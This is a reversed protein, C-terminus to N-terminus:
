PRSFKWNMTFTYHSWDTEIIGSLPQIGDKIVNIPGQVMLNHGRPTKFIVGLIFTLVGVGFHSAAPVPGDGHPIVEVANLGPDGNWIADFGGEIVGEWGHCNAINLPLCRTAYADNTDMQWQRLREAPRFKHVPVGGGLPYATLELADEDDNSM